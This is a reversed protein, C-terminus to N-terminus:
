RPLLASLVLSIVTGTNSTVLGTVTAFHYGDAFAQVHAPNTAVEYNATTVTGGSLPGDQSTTADIRVGLHVGTGATNNACRGSAQVAVPGGFQVWEIRKTSDLESATVTFTFTPTGFGGFLPRAPPNVWSAVFRQTASDVFQTSGNTRVIGVLTRTGDGTKIQHGYTTDTAPATASFEGTMTGSSMYVYAYYVTSSTLGGTGFSVGASPISEISGNILIRNGNFPDLRCSTTSVYLFRGCLVQIKGYLDDFLAANDVLQMKYTKSATNKTTGSTGDQGRTVTLTDSSRATVNVFEVNPDNAPDAYDTSNWWCLWYPVTGPLKAGHGTTLVISTASANYGTSVTVIAFNKVQPRPM